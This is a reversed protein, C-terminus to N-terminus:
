FSWPKCTNKDRYHPYTKLCVFTLSFCVIQAFLKHWMIYYQSIRKKEKKIFYKKIFFLSYKDWWLEVYYSKETKNLM